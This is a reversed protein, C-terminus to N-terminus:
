SLEDDVSPTGRGHGHARMFRRRGGTSSACRQIRAAGDYSAPSVARSEVAQRARKAAGVRKSSACLPSDRARRRAARQARAAALCEGDVDGEHM